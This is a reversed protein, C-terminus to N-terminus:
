TAFVQVLNKGPGAMPLPQQELEDLPTINAQKQGTVATPTLGRNSRAGCVGLVQSSKFAPAFRNANTYYQFVHSKRLLSSCRNEFVVFSADPHRFRIRRSWTSLANIHSIV